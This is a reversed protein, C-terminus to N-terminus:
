LVYINSGSFLVKKSIVPFYIRESRSEFFFFTLGNEKEKKEERHIFLIHSELHDLCYFCSHALMQDSFRGSRGISNHPPALLVALTATAHHSLLLLFAFAANHRLFCCCCWRRCCYCCRSCFSCKESATLVCHLLFCGPLCVCACELLLM